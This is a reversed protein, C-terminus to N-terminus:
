ATLGNLLQTIIHARTEKSLVPRTDAPRESEPDTEAGAFQHSFITLGMLACVATMYAIEFPRDAPFVGERQGRAYLERLQVPLQGATPLHVHNWGSLAEHIFLAVTQPRATVLEFYGSLALKMGEYPELEAAEDLIPTWATGLAIRQMLMVEAYLGEKSGFHHYIMRENVGARKVIAQVRAGKFGYIAFEEAAAGLLLM